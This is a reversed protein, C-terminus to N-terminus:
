FLLSRLQSRGARWARHSRDVGGSEAAVQQLFRAVEGSSRLRAFHAHAWSPDSMAVSYERRRRPHTRWAWLVINTEADRSFLNTARERNGNWLATRGAMRRLTRVVIRRMVAPRSLDVWVITTARGWVLDRVMSYGGDIVWRDMETVRGVRHRLEDTPLPQWDPQHYVADLEMVPSGVIAALDRALTSKGSGSTGIVAIRDLPPADNERVPAHVQRADM